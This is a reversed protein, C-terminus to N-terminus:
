NKSDGKQENLYKRVEERLKLGDARSLNDVEEPKLNTIRREVEAMFISEKMMNGQDALIRCETEEKWSIPRITVEGVSLKIKKM